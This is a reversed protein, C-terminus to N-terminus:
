FRYGASLNVSRGSATVGSAFYRYRLDLLNETSLQLMLGKRQYGMRINYIGWQPNGGPPNQNANDEGSSSYDKALKRGNFLYQAEYFIVESANYRLALQGFVPPIHDLPEDDSNELKMFRGQTFTYSGNAWIDKWVHIRANGYYGFITASSINVMQYIRTMAGDWLLSDSGNLQGPQDLLLNSVASRYVGIEGSGFKKHSIAWGLDITRSVEADLSPSPILLKIGRTSEFVKTMDDVNPNRFAQNYSVKLMMYDGMKQTLGFDYSLGTNKFSIENYPLKWLNSESFFAQLTYHTLRLGSQVVTNKWKYIGQSFVGSSYTQAGSDSYRAKAKSEAGSLINKNSGRSEVDNFVFEAGYNLTFAGWKNQRDANLTWMSVRDLQTRETPSGYPRTIRGVQTRQNAIVLRSNGILNQLTYAFLQRNQPAYDWRGFGFRGQNDTLSMRDYRPIVGAFSGQINFIHFLKKTKLKFKTFVDNQSYGTGRQILPDNNTLITDRGNHQAVFNPMEAYKTDAKYYSRSGMRLDGFQSSTMNLIWGFKPSQYQVGGNIIFSSSSSLYRLNSSGSWKKQGLQPEKTKLFIVGGLADSGFLTSGSGFNIEMRDLVFPDVTIIDQLHGARFTANNMRVGDVVLLVRSAEFGRLVPSSGGMQSKQVFVKGSSILADGLTAPVLENLRKSTLVEIQRPSESRKQAFRQSSVLIEDFSEIETTDIIQSSASSIYICCVLITLLKNTKM